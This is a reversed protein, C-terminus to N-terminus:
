GSVSSPCQSPCKQSACKTVPMEKWFCSYRSYESQVLVRSFHKANPPPHSESPWIIRPPKRMSSSRLASIASARSPKAAPRTVLRALASTSNSLPMLQLLHGLNEQEVVVRDAAPVLQEFLAADFAQAAEVHAATRALHRGQLVSSQLGPNPRGERARRTVDTGPDGLFKAKDVFAARPQDRQQM